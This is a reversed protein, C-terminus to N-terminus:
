FTFKIGVGTGTRGLTLKRQYNALEKKTDQILIIEPLALFIGLSYLTLTSIVFVNNKSGSAFYIVSGAAAAIFPSFFQFHALKRTLKMNSLMRSRIVSDEQGFNMMKIQNIATKALKANNIEMGNGGSGIMATISLPGIPHRSNNAVAAFGIGTAQFAFAMLCVTEQAKLTKELNVKLLSDSDSLETQGFVNGFIFVLVLLTLFIKFSNRSESIDRIEGM